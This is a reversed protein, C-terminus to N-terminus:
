LGRKGRRGAGTGAPIRPAADNQVQKYQKYVIGYQLATELTAFIDRLKLGSIGGIDDGADGRGGTRCVIHFLLPVVSVARVSKIQM